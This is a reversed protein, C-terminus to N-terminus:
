LAGLYKEFNSKAFLTAPRLYEQMKPDNGWAKCRALVVENLQLRTYGERLRAIVLEGNATLEGKPNKLQFQSDTAQNLYEFVDQADLLYIATAHKGNKPKSSKKSELCADDPETARCHRQDQDKTLPKIALPKIALMAKANREDDTTADSECQTESANANRECTNESANNVWRSKASAKAKDSLNRYNALEQDCRKQHYGDESLVFFEELIAIVAQKEEESQARALKQCQRVETPLPKERSYYQDLLRTYIGEETANLHATDRVWDGIHKKFHNM